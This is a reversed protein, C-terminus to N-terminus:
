CGLDVLAQQFAAIVAPNTASDLQNQLYTCAPNVSSQPVDLPTLATVQDLPVWVSVANGLFIAVWVENGVLATDTVVYTDAGSGDADHPLWLESGDANRVVGGGPGDYVPQSQSTSIEILGENPVSLGSAAGTGSPALSAQLRLMM